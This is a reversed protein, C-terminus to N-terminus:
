EFILTGFKRFEHFSPGVRAWDWSAPKKDDYDMRYFNARWKTGPKPSVNRLPTLLEYPIFVEAKWGTVTAGSKLEGGAASTAKRTKRGGAYHWPRWGMAKDGLNPVLIPLEYNLPSIEYEFYIPDREDTWLFVEFVDETWLNLFDEKLTATIKEDAADILVYFGKKSYLTKVRTAYDKGEKTRKNLPVWEAAKWAAATGDGTLEFDETPKVRMEKGKPAEDKPTADKAPTDKPGDKLGYLVREANTQYVKKLVEPPLFLGYINWFGQRHHSASCDFYEDDTELFRYYIRYADVKPTTDTGFMIRDQYKLFFKRATYPQRGLESIRADIDVYMNPYKDLKDAVAALDEANNGFHTNVFTTKPHKAIVHHLQDLVDERKPNDGAYFLWDLHQNLEHWRENHRDLPTFFAAPDGVHIVVPRGFKACTEWIPDLKPDDVPVLRGDKYRYRLGFTKHFKLGKAGAKFGEELRKVERATWDPGDIGEFNILAFTLFRGPYTEDLAAITEKLRGDWGGDLNVVTRVGAEDMVKLYRKVVDPTLVKSGGGLHNHVDVVPYMPRDVATAKAVMMSRPEWDHLKLERIDAPPDASRAPGAIAILFLSSFLAMRLRLGM